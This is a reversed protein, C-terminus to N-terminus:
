EERLADIPDVSAASRAPLYGAAIAATALVIAVGFFIASDHMDVHYLFGAMFRTLVFAAILGVFVGAGAVVAAQGAIMRSIQARQVGLAMRIGIERVRQAVNFALVGYVGMLALSVAITGFTAMLIAYSREASSEGALRQELTAMSYVPM